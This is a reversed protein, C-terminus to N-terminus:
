ESIYQLLDQIPGLRNIRVYPALRFSGGNGKIIKHLKYKLFEEKTIYGVLYLTFDENKVPYLNNTSCLVYVNADNNKDELDEVLLELYNNIPHLATKVDIVIGGKLFDTGGDGQDCSEYIRRDYSLGSIEEFAIEGIAGLSHKKFGSGYKGNLATARILSENVKRPGSTHAVPTLM